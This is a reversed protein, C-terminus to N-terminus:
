IAYEKAKKNLENTEFRTKQLEKNVGTQTSYFKAQAAALARSLREQEKIEANARKTIQVEKEKAKVFQSNNSVSKFQKELGAMEVAVSKIANFSNLWKVNAEVANEIDKAYDTGIDFVKAEVIDDRTIKNGAM